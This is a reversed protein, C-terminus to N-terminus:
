LGQPWDRHPALHPAVRTPRGNLTAAFQPVSTGIATAECVITAPYLRAPM